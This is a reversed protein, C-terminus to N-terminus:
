LWHAEGKHKLVGFIRAPSIDCVRKKVLVLYYVDKGLTDARFKDPGSSRISAGTAVHRITSM